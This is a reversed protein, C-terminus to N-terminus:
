NILKFYNKGGIKFVRKGEFVFRKKQIPTLMSFALRYKQKDNVSIFKDEVVLGLEETFVLDIYPM